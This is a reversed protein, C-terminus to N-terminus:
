IQEENYILVSMHTDLEHFENYEKEAVRKEVHYWLPVM